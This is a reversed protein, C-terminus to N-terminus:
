RCASKEFGHNELAQRTEHFISKRLIKQDSGFFLFYSCAKGAQGANKQNYSSIVSNLENTGISRGFAGVNTGTLVDGLPYSGSGDGSGDGKLDSIFIGAAGAGPVRLTLPLPSYFHSIASFRIAWPRPVKPASSQQKSM